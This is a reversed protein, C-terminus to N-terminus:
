GLKWANCKSFGYLSLVNKMSCPLLSLSFSPYEKSSIHAFHPPHQGKLYWNQCDEYHSVRSSKSCSSKAMDIQAIKNTPRHTRETDAASSFTPISCHDFIPKKKWLRSILNLYLSLCNSSFHRSSLQCSLRDSLIRGQTSVVYFYVIIFLYM